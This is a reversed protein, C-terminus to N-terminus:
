VQLRSVNDEALTHLNVGWLNKYAEIVELLPKITTLLISVNHGTNRLLQAYTLFMTAIGSAVPTLGTPLGTTATGPLIIWRVSGVSM